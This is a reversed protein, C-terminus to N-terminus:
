KMLHEQDDRKGYNFPWNKGKEMILHPIEANIRSICVMKRENEYLFPIELIKETTYVVQPETSAGSHLSFHHIQRGYM